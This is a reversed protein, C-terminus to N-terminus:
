MMLLLMLSLLLLLFFCTKMKIIGTIVVNVTVIAIMIINIIIAIIRIMLIRHVLFLLHLEEGPVLSASCWLCRTPFVQRVHPLFCYFCGRRWTSQSPPPLHWVAPRSLSM